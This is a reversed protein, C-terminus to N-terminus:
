EIGGCYIRTKKFANIINNETFATKYAVKFLKYFFQKTM